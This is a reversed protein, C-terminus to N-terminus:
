ILWVLISFAYSFKSYYTLDLRYSLSFQGVLLEAYVFSISGGWMLGVGQQNSLHFQCMNMLM